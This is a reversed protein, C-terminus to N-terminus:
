TLEKKMYTKHKNNVQFSPMPPPKPVGHRSNNCDNMIKHNTTSTPTYNGYISIPQCEMYGLKSYFGEQGKTSLYITKLQLCKKCYAEAKEMLVTGFGKGRLGREIVVSEVFCADPISPVPSLKLHGIVDENKLLILSTPLKDSSSELSRMRATESRKWEDNILKCCNSMYKKNHHLPVVSLDMEVESSSYILM